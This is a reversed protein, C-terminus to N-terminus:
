QGLVETVKDALCRQCGAPDNWGAHPCMRVGLLRMAAVLGNDHEELLLQVRRDSFVRRQARVRVLMDRLQRAVALRKGPMFAGLFFWFAYILADSM